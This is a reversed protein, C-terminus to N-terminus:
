DVDLEKRFFSYFMKYFEPNDQIIELAKDALWKRQEITGQSRLTGTLKKGAAELAADRFYLYRKLGQVADSDVFRQDQTAKRLQDMVRANKYFDGEQKLGRMVYSERLAAKAEDLRDGDWQEAAARTLLRDQAAYYRIATVREVIEDAGMRERRNTRRQWNYLEQSYGGGPYLYGYVDGYENLVNPDRMLLEYTFHNTPGGTTTSIISLLAEPGYLDIFDGYAKNYNGGSELELTKFDNYLATALITNGDADKALTELQPPAASIMGFFGRFVTFYKSFTTTDQVLKAQDNPDDLNYDGSSALYSMVPAFSAGYSAEMFPGGLIRRWNNSLLFTEVVGEQVNPRGFPFIIKDATDRMLGAPLLNLPSIGLSDLASISFTVGPGVGPIISGSAFAFNFSQPTASLAVPGSLGPRAGGPTLNSLFNLGTGLFPIFLKREGSRQDRFFFGQNPDYIDRADTLEYLSASEPSTLWNLSKGVKYVQDPNDLSIRAWAQITDDWAQGFPLILRLQHYLLRKKSADYFL